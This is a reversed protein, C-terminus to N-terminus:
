AEHAKDWQEKASTVAKAVDGKGADKLKTQFGELITAPDTGYDALPALDIIKDKHAKAEARSARLATNLGQIASVASKVGAHDSGLKFKDGDQVYLARFDQPVKDLSAVETNQAFDWDM